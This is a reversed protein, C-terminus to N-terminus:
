DGRGSEMVSVWQVLPVAILWNSPGEHKRPCLSVLFGHVRSGFVKGESGQLLVCHSGPIVVKEGAGGVM